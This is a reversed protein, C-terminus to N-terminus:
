KPSVKDGSLTFKEAAETTQKDTLYGKTKLSDFSDPTSRVELKYLDVQSQLVSHLADKGTVQAKEQSSMVGPIVLLMLMSVIFLVVIMEMLTFGKQDKRVSVVGSKKM